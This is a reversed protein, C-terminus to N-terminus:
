FEWNRVECSGRRKNIMIILCDVYTLKSIILTYNQNIFIYISKKSNNFFNIFDFLDINNM